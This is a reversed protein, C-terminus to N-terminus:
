RNYNERERERKSERVRERQKENKNHFLKQCKAWYTLYSRVTQRDRDRGRETM